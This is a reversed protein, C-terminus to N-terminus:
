PLAAAASAFSTTRVYGDHWITLPFDAFGRYAGIKDVTTGKAIEEPPYETTWQLTPYGSLSVTKKWTDDGKLRHWVDIHGSSNTTWRVHVILEHWAELALPAPVAAMRPLNGARASTYACGPTATFVSKCLGSQLVIEIWDGHVMLAVPSGWINEFNFQAIELGWNVPSPEQWESPLRVMLGYYDDSGVGIPRGILAECAQLVGAAPLDVRAGYDGEGVVESQVTITGRVATATSPVGTNACQAGPWPALTGSEFSGRFLVGDTGGPPPVSSPPAGSLYGLFLKFARMSSRGSPKVGLDVSQVDAVASIASRWPAPSFRPRLTPLLLLRASASGNDAAAHRLALRRVPRPGHLRLVVIDVNRLSSLREVVGPRPAVVACSAVQRACPRRRLQIVRLDLRRALSRVRRKQTRSLQRNLVIMNIGRKKARAMLRPRVSPAFKPTVELAWRGDLRQSAATAAASQAHATGPIAALAALAVAFLLVARRGIPAAGLM